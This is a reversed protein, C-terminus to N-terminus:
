FLKKLRKELDRLLTRLAGGVIQIVSVQIDGLSKLERALDFYKDTEESAKM